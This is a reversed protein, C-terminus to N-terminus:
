AAGGTRERQALGACALMADALAQAPCPVEGAVWLRLMAFQAAAAAAALMATPAADARPPALRAAIMAALRRQLRAGTGGNLVIRAVARKQWVHDLMARLQAPSARGSAASALPLLIPEMAALLVEEKGRFHEYFTARGIGAAATLDAIRITDYRREFVLGVFAALIADRTRRARTGQDQRDQM